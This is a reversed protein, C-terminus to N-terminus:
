APSLVCMKTEWYCTFWSFYDLNITLTIANLWSSGSDLVKQLEFMWLRICFGLEEPWNKLCYRPITPNEFTKNQTIQFSFDIINMMLATQAMQAFTYVARNNHFSNIEGEFVSLVFCKVWITYNSFKVLLIPSFNWFHEHLSFCFVRM